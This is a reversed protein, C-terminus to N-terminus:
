RCGLYGNREAAHSVDRIVKQTASLLPMKHFLNKKRKTAFRQPSTTYNFDVVDCSYITISPNARSLFDQQDKHGLFKETARLRTVHRISVNKGQKQGM